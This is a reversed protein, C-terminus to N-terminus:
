KKEVNYIQLMIEKTKEQNHLYYWWKRGGVEKLKSTGPLTKMSINETKINLAQVAYTLIQKENMDTQVYTLLEKAIPLAEKSFLKNIASKIFQQQANVRGLDGNRYGKRHRLFVIAHKGDLTQLGEPIDEIEHPVNVEVGGLANVIQEVSQYNLTVYHHIPVGGLIKGVADMAGKEKSRGYKANIKRQDGNDYGKDHYYTDRPISIVDVKKTEPELSVFVITDTRPGEEKGLLLINIRKSNKVLNKLPDIAKKKPVEKVTDENKYLKYEEIDELLEPPIAQGININALFVICIMLMVVWIKKM